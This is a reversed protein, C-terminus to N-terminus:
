GAAESYDTQLAIEAVRGELLQRVRWLEIFRERTMWPVIVKRNPLLVLAREAILRSVAERVPM